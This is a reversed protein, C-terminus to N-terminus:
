GFCLSLSERPALIMEALRSVLNLLRNPSFYWCSANSSCTTENYTNLLFFALWSYYCKEFNFITEASM